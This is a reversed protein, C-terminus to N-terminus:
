LKEVKIKNLATVLQLRMSEILKDNSKWYNLSELMHKKLCNRDLCDNGWDIFSNDQLRSVWADFEKKDKSMVSLFKEPCVVSFKCFSDSIMQCAIGDRNRWKELMRNIDAKNWIVCDTTDIVTGARAKQVVNMSGLCCVMLILMLFVNKM